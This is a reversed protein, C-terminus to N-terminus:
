ADAAKEQRHDRVAEEILEEAANKGLYRDIAAHALYIVPTIAIAVITKYGYSTLAGSLYVETTIKGPLWFAIGWVVFTDILQSVFTSGTARLWLYRGGTLDRFKWFVVVDILQSLLFATLSGAIIWMGQGFVRQFSADDIPSGDIAPISMAGLLLLFVYFILGTTMLTIRRTGKKGFYENILDTAIFVIPWPLVGISLTAGFVNILKGGILEAIIANTVFFGTLVLYIMNQRYAKQELAM